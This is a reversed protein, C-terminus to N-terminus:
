SRPHTYSVSILPASFPSHGTPACRSHRGRPLWPTPELGSWVAWWGTSTRQHCHRCTLCLHQQCRIVTIRWSWLTSLPCQGQVLACRTPPLLCPSGARQVQPSCAGGTVRGGHCGTPEKVGRSWPGPEPVTKRAAALNPLHDGSHAMPGPGAM